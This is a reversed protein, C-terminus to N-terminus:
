DVKISGYIARVFFFSAITGIAGTLLMFLISIIAMYGFYLTSPVVGTIELESAYYWVAYLMIYAACSGSSLVSRWWWNYDENCLQFYCLVISIEACTIILILLVLALFGFVYYFRQLWVSTMIFFLEIFIAGFPLIGGMLVNFAGVMYWAQEPVQRPIENTRCPPDKLKAKFGFFAGAFVLPVSVGFWMLLLVVMTGFPIAGSSQQGWIFFNLVFLTAAIAGPYLTATLV